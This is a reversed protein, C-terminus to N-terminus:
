TVKAKFFDEKYTTEIEIKPSLKLNGYKKKIKEQCENASMEKSMCSRFQIYKRNQKLM